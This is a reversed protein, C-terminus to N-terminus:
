KALKAFVEEAPIASFEGRRFAEIRDEAEQAWLEDMAKRDANDFSFFLEEILEARDVPPLTMADALAKEFNPDLLACQDALRSKGLRDLKERVALEIMRSRNPFRHASVLSDVEALTQEDMTVALKAKAM